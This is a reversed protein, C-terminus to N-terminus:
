ISLPVVAANHPIVRTAPIFRAGSPRNATVCFNGCSCSSASAPGLDMELRGLHLYVMAEGEENRVRESRDIHRGGLLHIHMQKRQASTAEKARSRHGWGQRNFPPSDAVTALGVRVRDLGAARPQWLGLTACSVATRM